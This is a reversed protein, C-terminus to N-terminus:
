GKQPINAGDRKGACFDAKPAFPFHAPIHLGNIGDFTVRLPGRWSLTGCHPINDPLQATTPKPITLIVCTRAYRFEAGTQAM